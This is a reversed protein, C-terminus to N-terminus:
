WGQEPWPCRRSWWHPRYGFRALVESAPGRGGRWLPSTKPVAPVPGAGAAPRKTTPAPADVARDSSWLKSPRGSGAEAGQEALQEAILEPGAGAWIM